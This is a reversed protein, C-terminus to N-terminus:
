KLGSTQANPILREGSGSITSLSVAAIVVAGGILQSATPPSGLATSILMSAVPVLNIFLSASGAGVKAVGANWLFYAILGGGVALVVLAIGVHPSPVPLGSGSLFSAVTLGIAGTLMIGSINATATADRPMVKRVFVSYFAWTLSAVFMFADGYAVGSRGHSGLVVIAVGALGIPIALTQMLRPREGLVFYAVVLTLLPNLAMILSANVASTTQLALFFFVNYGFVGFLGLVLYSKFPRLLLRGGTSFLVALVIVAAIIYRWAGAALPSMEALVPKALNFNAGWLVAALALSLYTRILPMAPLTGPQM